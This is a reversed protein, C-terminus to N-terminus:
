FGNFNLKRFLFETFMTTDKVEVKQLGFYISDVLTNPLYDYNVSFKKEKKCYECELTNRSVISFAM